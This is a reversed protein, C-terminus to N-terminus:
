LGRLDPGATTTLKSTYTLWLHAEYNDGTLYLVVRTRPADWEARLKLDGCLVAFGWQDPDNRYLNRKWVATDVVPPGYKLTLLGKLDEFDDIYLNDNIHEDLFAYFAESLQSDTFEYFVSVPHGAVVCDGALTSYGTVVSLVVETEAAMVEEMTMGWRANRFDPADTALASGTMLLAILLASTLVRRISLM